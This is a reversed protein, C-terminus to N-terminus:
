NLMAWMISRSRTKKKKKIKAARHCNRWYSESYIRLRNFLAYHTYVTYYITHILIYIHITCQICVTYLTNYISSIWVYRLTLPKYRKIIQKDYICSSSVRYRFIFCINSSIYRSNISIRYIASDDHDFIRHNEFM